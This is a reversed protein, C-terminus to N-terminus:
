VLQPSLHLVALTDVGVVDFLYRVRGQISLILLGFVTIHGLSSDLSYFALSHPPLHERDRTPPIRKCHTTIKNEFFYFLITLHHSKKNGLTNFLSVNYPLYRCMREM